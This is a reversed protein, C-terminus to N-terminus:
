YKRKTLRHRAPNLYIMSSDVRSNDIFLLLERGTLVVEVTHEMFKCKIASPSPTIVDGITDLLYNFLSLDFVLPM